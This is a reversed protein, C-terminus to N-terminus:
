ILAPINVKDRLEAMRKRDIGKCFDKVSDLLAMVEMREKNVVQFIGEAQTKASLIIQEAQKTAQINQEQILKYREMEKQIKARISELDGLIMEYSVRDQLLFANLDEIPKQINQLLKTIEESKTPM